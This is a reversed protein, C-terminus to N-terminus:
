ALRAGTDIDIVMVERFGMGALAGKIERAISSWLTHNIFKCFGCRPDSATFSV